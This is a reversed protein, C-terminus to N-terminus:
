RVVILLVIVTIFLYLLYSRVSGNQIRRFRRATNLVVDWTPHYMYGGAVPIKFVSFTRRVPQSFGTASYSMNALRSGGCTWTPAIQRREKGAWIRVALWVVFGGGGLIALLLFPLISMSIANQSYWIQRVAYSETPPLALRLAQTILVPFLGLLLPVLAGLLLAIRMTIPAEHAQKAGSSRGEGQFGIGFIRASMLAVFAGSFLLSFMAFVPLLGLMNHLNAHIIRATVSFLLWESMFGNFPPIASVSLLGIAMAFTTYPMRRVLGGLRNLSREHTGHIISGAGHFLLSKFAAHNIAQYLTACFAIGALTVQHLALALLSIGAGMFLLGMNEISSYALIRKVDLEQTAHFAGLVASSAGLVILLAGRWAEPHLWYFNVLLLGYLATKLMIGSMLASVHSPAAPHARPLWIHLPMMGAKLSFGILTFVFVVTQLVPSLAAADHAFVAFDYSGTYQHLLYFALVLFVTGLQTMALYIVGAMAVGPRESEYVVLLYSMFSMTEWGLLFTFANGALFVLAMTAVFALVGLDLWVGYQRSCYIVGYGIGYLASLIGLIGLVILFVGSIPAVTLQIVLFPVPIFMNFIPHEFLLSPHYLGIWGLCILFSSFVVTMLNIVVHAIRSM